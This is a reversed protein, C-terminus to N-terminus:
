GLYAEIVKGAASADHAVCVAVYKGSRSIIAEELTKVEAPVYDRFSEKQEEIRDKAAEEFAQAEDEDAAQLLVLEEATAGTSVYAWLEASSSLTVGYLDNVIDADTQTMEDTFVGKDMLESALASLDADAKGSAPADQAACGALMLVCALLAVALSLAAWKKKMIIM